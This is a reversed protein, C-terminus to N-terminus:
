WWSKIFFLSIIGFIELRGLLMNITLIFKGLSPLDSYNGFSSVDGFGPGVNGITAASSSFATIIDIDLFSLLLTTILIIFLYLIIFIMTHNEINEDISKGGVKLLIVARPHQIMKIQKAVAKFFILVRDFKLGGSTSGATACQITFYILIIQTFSPWNVTDATAFGTTTGLSIVQFASYRVAEWWTYTGSFFLKLSVFVIGAFLFVLYAKIIPSNFINNKKGLITNFTLGFHIGSLVMFIMVIIEISINNFSAISFNKTSFGGTAITAFSHNIADFFTM